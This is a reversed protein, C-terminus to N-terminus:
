PLKSRVENANGREDGVVLVVERSDKQLVGDQKGDHWILNRKPDYHMRIWRGDVEARIEAVGSLDDTVKYELRNRDIRIVRIVPPTTDIGLTYTGFEKVQATVAGNIFRGGRASYRKKDPDYHLLVLKEHFEDSMARPTLRVLFTDNVPEFRNGIEFHDAYHQNTRGLRGSARAIWVPTDDYLVGEPVYVSCSDTQMFNRRDYRFLTTGEPWVTEESRGPPGGKLQFRLTTTNGHVDSVEARIAATQGRELEIVGNNRITKYIPLRNAPLRFTRHVSIKDRKFRQYDAHANLHRNTSFDLQDIQQAYVLTDNLYVDIRYVGCVNANGDLLDLTHIGVGISGHVEIPRGQLLSVEGTSARTPFLQDRQSGEVFAKKGIPKIVVGKVLPARQDAVPFDWLLPNVPWETATERIEFHLHPGGSSGSNGSKAIVASSDVCLTGPAPYLDVEWSELDYQAKRLYAEIEHNFESLHAYVSTYGNPHDIYLANGYGYPGVRIRSVCGGTVAFVDLGERGQTKIDLGTHFHNNRFEGFNGSLNLPINLPSRFGSRSAHQAHISASAAFFSLFFLVVARIMTHLLVSHGLSACVVAQFYYDM